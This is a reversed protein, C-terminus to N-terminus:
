DTEALNCPGCTDFGDDAKQKLCTSCYGAAVLRKRERRHQEFTALLAAPLLFLWRSYRRVGTANTASYRLGDFDFM